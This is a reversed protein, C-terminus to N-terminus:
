HFFNGSIYAFPPNWVLSGSLTGSQDVLLYLGDLFCSFPRLLTLQSVFRQSVCHEAGGEADGVNSNGISMALADFRKLKKMLGRDTNGSSKTPTEMNLPTAAQM